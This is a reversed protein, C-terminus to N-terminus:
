WDIDPYWKSWIAAFKGNSMITSWADQLAKIYEDKTELSLALYAEGPSIGITKTLDKYTKGNQSAILSVALNTFTGAAIDGAWLAKFIQDPTDYSRLNTFGLQQLKTEIAWGTPVGISLLKKAEEISGASLTSGSKVYIGENYKCVPGVWKYLNEREPTRSTSFVATNPALALQGLADTWTTLTITNGLDTLGTMAEVIETSSGTLTGQEDRYNMRPNSETFISIIGPAKVGTLYKDYIQQLTGQKKLDNIKVQWADVLKPSVGPSFAIFGQICSYTYQETLESPNLNELSATMRVTNALNYISNITGAYLAKIAEPMTTFYVLNGFQLTELTETPSWGTMVGVAKLKKADDISNIAIGSSKLGIFGTAMIAIPGAWQVQSKREPTLGCTFLAVNDSTTLLEYAPAWTPYVVIEKNQVGMLNLIQGAIDASIGKLQNNELYTYPPLTVSIVKLDRGTVDEKKCSSGLSLVCIASLLLILNKM